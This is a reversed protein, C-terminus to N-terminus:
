QIVREQFHREIADVSDVVSTSNILRERIELCRTKIASDQLLARVREFMRKFSLKRHLLTKGCGLKEVRRANDFQDFAMPILLQPIGAALSQSTTGIGGHHVIAQCHRLATRFPLYREHHVNAPLSDPLQEPFETLLLGHVDLAECVEAAVRFFDSAQRNATGPAFVVPPRPDRDRIAQLVSDTDRQMERAGDELPFGTCQLRDPWHEKDAAFWEPYLGLVLDPSLYWNNLVSRVPALGIAQRVRNIPRDLWRAILLRDAAWYSAEVLWAPRQIEWSWGTLKAPQRPTRIAMPALLTGILPVEPHLDRFIRSGFDLPHTLLITEGPRYHESLLDLTPQILQAATEGLVVRLGKIPSWLGPQGIFHEFEEATVLCHTEFGAAQALPIYPESTLFLIRWGRRKLERSLALMPNVDGRSGIASVIALPNM